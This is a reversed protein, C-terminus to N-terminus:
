MVVKSEPRLEGKIEFIFAGFIGSLIKRLSNENQPIITNADHTLEGFPIIYPVWSVSTM